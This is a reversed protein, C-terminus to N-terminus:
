TISYFCVLGWITSFRDLRGGIDSVDAVQNALIVQLAQLNSLQAQLSGM